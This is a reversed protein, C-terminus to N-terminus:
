QKIKKLEEDTCLGSKGLYNIVNNKLVQDTEKVVNKLLFLKDKDIEDNYGLFSPLNTQISFRLFRIELDLPDRTIAEEILKKGRNFRSLKNIPNIVYKAEMMVVAGKYCVLLASSKNDVSSLLNNLEKWSAKSAPAKDYLSRIKALDPTELGSFMLGMFSVLCVLLKM